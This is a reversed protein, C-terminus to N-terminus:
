AYRQYCSPGSRIAVHVHREFLFSANQEAHPNDGNDRAYNSTGKKSSRRALRDPYEEAQKGQGDQEAEPM